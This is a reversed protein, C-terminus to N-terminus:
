AERWHTIGYLLHMQNHWAFDLGLKPDVRQARYVSQGMCLVEYVKSDFSPLKDNVSIWNM